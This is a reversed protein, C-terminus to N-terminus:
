RMSIYTKLRMICPTSKGDIQRTIQRDSTPINKVSIISFHGDSSQNGGLVDVADDAPLAHVFGVHGFGLAKGSSEYCSFIALDGVIPQSTQKFSHSDLFSQSSASRSGRLRCREICWNAFAACWAIMDNNAATTTSRFFEVILPNWHDPRPWQSILRPKFRYRDVFSQAVDLPAPGMPTTRIIDNAADIEAQSPPTTGLKGLVDLASFPPWQFAAFDAMSDASPLAFVGGTNAAFYVAGLGGLISRRSIM